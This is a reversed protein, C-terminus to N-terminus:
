SIRVLLGIFVIFFANIVSPNFLFYFWSTFHGVIKDTSAVVGKEDLQLNGRSEDSTTWEIILSSFNDFKRGLRDTVVVSLPVSDTLPVPVKFFIVGIM